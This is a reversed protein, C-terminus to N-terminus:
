NSLHELIGSIQGSFERCTGSDKLELLLNNEDNDIDIYNIRTFHRYKDKFIMPAFPGWFVVSKNKLNAKTCTTFHDIKKIRQYPIAGAEGKLSYLVLSGDALGVKLPTPRPIQPFGGQYSVSGLLEDIQFKETFHQDAQEVERLKSRGRLYSITLVVLVAVGILIAKM